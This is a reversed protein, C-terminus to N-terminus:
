WGDGKGEFGRIIEDPMVNDVTFDLVGAGHAADTIALALTDGSDLLGKHLADYTIGIRDGSREAPVDNENDAPQEFIGLTRVIIAIHVEWVGSFPSAVPRAILSDCITCPLTKLSSDKGPFVDDVTGANESILYAVLARDCKDLLNHKAM